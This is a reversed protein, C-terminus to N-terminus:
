QVSGGEAEWAAVATAAFVVDGSRAPGDARAGEGDARGPLPFSRRYTDYAALVELDHRRRGPYYRTAFGRWDLGDPAAM